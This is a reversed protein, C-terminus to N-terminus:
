ITRPPREEGDLVLIPVPVSPAPNLAATAQPLRLDLPASALTTLTCFSGCLNCADATIGPPDDEQHGAQGDHHAHHSHTAHNAQQADPAHEAHGDAAFGSGGGHPDVVVTASDAANQPLCPMGAAMAGRVPLLAVLLLLLWTRLRNM